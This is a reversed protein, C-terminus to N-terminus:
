KVKTTARFHFFSDIEKGNNTTCSVLLSQSGNKYQEEEITVVTMLMGQRKFTDGKKLESAKM